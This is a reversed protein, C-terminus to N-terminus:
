QAAQIHPEAGASVPVTLFVVSVCVSVSGFGSEEHEQVRTAKAVGDVDVTDM